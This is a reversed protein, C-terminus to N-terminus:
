VRVQVHCDPGTQLPILDDPLQKGDLTIEPASLGAQEVTIHYTCGRFKRTVTYHKLDAPLCPAIRLGDFDPQIGLIAQSISVFSWAATGTLWSNKAEGPSASARGAITQSYVYPETRRIHTVDQLYAPSLRRYLDFAEEGRGLRTEAISVWPNNHAFVSGNEKYGPPYSTIEGLEVHYRTYCPALLEIGYDGVLHARVSDLAKEAYGNDLGLDAMVCMGQPEIFIKGEECDASGVKHGYADYARLFWAGDWGHDYVAQTMTSVHGLIELAEEMSGFRTCLDAYERGYKVFLGAIFVSEAIGSEFNSTTQFSEGPTTSFCNLNLCDNWDARGILPLGHPGKHDITYRISRRLHDFLPVETGPANDFPVPTDLISADGTERIYAATSAILWLPDDNFGGGAADNGKKTLPQFQHYTSGDAFQISALDIIRERAKEPILHVFGLLDQNGDRFGIGRGMGSEYYSASRSINFTVMCQYQNWINVMRDMREQASTVQFTSLLDTWHDRLHQLELAVAESTSFKEIVRRAPAKNIRGPGEWKDDARNQAYGLVFILENQEGPALELELRHSGIPYWGHAMSQASTGEAVARPDDFGRFSGLFADRDTDYGQIPRNVSYYAYHNRRERYETKHYIVGDEVEVEAINLSRQFNQGDEVADWLCWEALSHLTINKIEATANSLTLRHIECTEGLPIFATLESRLGNKESEITTYGLGHRCLYHDLPTKTPSYGPNWATQGREKIYYYRGGTDAPVNNYRFRTLRQLRADRYFTYGGMTNSVLGFFDENGLYNIWPLPTMPTQIVYERSADDFYGYRMM